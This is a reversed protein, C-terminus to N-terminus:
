TSSGRPMIYRGHRKGRRLAGRRSVQFFDANDEFNRDTILQQGRKYDQAVVLGSLIACLDKIQAHIRSTKSRWTLIDVKDTYESVHLAAELLRLLRREEMTLRLPIFKCREKFSGGSGISSTTPITGAGSSVRSVERTSYRSGSSGNIASTSAGAGNAAAAAERGDEADSSDEGSNGAADAEM